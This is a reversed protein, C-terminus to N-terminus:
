ETTSENGAPSRERLQTVARTAAATPRYQRQRDTTEEVLGAARFEGLLGHLDSECLEYQELLTIPSIPGRDVIEIVLGLSQDDYATTLLNRVAPDIGGAATALPSQKECTELESTPLYQETGSAPERVLTQDGSQKLLLYQNGDGDRVTRM